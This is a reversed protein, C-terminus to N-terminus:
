THFNDLRLISGWINADLLAVDRVPELTIPGIFTATTFELGEIVTLVEEAFEEMVDAEALTTVRRQIVVAVKPMRGWDCQSDRESMLGGGIVTIQPAATVSTFGDRDFDPRWSRVITPTESWSGHAALLTVLEAAIAKVTSV